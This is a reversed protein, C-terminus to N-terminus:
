VATLVVGVAVVVLFRIEWGVDQGVLQRVEARVDEVAKRIENEAHDRAAKVADDQASTQRWVETSLDEHRHELDHVYDNVWAIQDALALGGPM